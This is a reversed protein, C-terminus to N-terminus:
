YDVLFGAGLSKQSYNYDILSQGYGSFLQFYGKLNASLPIALGLQVAGHRKQFNRRGLMSLEYGKMRYVVRLDGHGLYDAIDVNDNDSRANDLRKWLRLTLGLDGREAGMEAYVRNWSRSLTSTQGNSQHVAGLNLYRIDFLGVDLYLPSVLMLEPQYNTERFPSSAARNYAQWYSQQTYAFWLDLPTHALQEMMKMKFSLQYTLETHQSKLGAPTFDQFPGDNSSTSYNIPLLYSERHPRFNFAGRKSAQDLEWSQVMPSVTAEPPITTVAAIRAPLQPAQPPAAPQTRPPPSDDAAGSAPGAFPVAAPANRALGDYCALRASADGLTACRELRLELDNVPAPAQALALSPPLSTSLLLLAFLPRM